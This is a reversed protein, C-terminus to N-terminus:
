VLYKVWFNMPPECDKFGHKKYLNKANKNDDRVELTIKGFGEEKTYNIISDMLFSGVGLNRYKSHVIFDHINLSRKLIFTSYMEFCVAMGIYHIEDTVLFIICSNNNSLGKILENKKDNPLTTGTGMEDKMYENILEFVANQHETSNLDAQIVNM